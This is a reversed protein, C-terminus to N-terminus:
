VEQRPFAAVWLLCPRWKSPTKSPRAHESIRHSFTEWHHTHCKFPFSTRLITIKKKRSSFVIVSLDSNKLHRLVRIVLTGAHPLLCWMRHHSTKMTLTVPLCVESCTQVLTQLSVYGLLSCRRQIHGRRGTTQLVPQFYLFVPSPSGLMSRWRQRSGEQPCLSCSSVRLAMSWRWPSYERWGLAM